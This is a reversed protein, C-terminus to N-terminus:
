KLATKDLYRDPSRSDYKTSFNTTHFIYVAIKSDGYASNKKSSTDKRSNYRETIIGATKTLTHDAQFIVAPHLQLM